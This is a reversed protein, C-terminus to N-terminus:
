WVAPSTKCSKGLVREYANRVASPQANVWAAFETSQAISDADPHKSYIADYHAAAADKAQKTALPEM